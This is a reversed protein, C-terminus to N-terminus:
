GSSRSLAGYHGCVWWPSAEVRSRIGGPGGEVVLRWRARPQGWGGGLQGAGKLLSMDCRLLVRQADQVGDGGFGLWVGVHRASAWRAELRGGEERLYWHHIYINLRRSNDRQGAVQRQGGDLWRAM